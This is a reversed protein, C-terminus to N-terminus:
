VVPPDERCLVFYSGEPKGDRFAMGISVHETVKRIHDTLGKWVLGGLRDTPQTIAPWAAPKRPPVKAYDIVMEGKENLSATFYGHGVVTSVLADNHNYGWLAEGPDEGDPRCFRKQFLSFLPLSNKGYHIAEVLAEGSPVFHELSMAGSAEVADYLAMMQARTLTRCANRRAWPGATDLMTKFRELREEDLTPDFYVGLYM